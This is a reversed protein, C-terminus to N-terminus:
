KKPKYNVGPLIRSTVTLEHYNRYTAVFLWEANIADAKATSTIKKPMSFSENNLSVQGYEITWTWEADVGPSVEIHPAKQELRVIQMTQPDIYARGYNIEPGPCSKDSKAAEKKLTYDVIFVPLHHLKKHSVLKYDYCKKFELSVMVLSNSFAGVLISPGKLIQDKAPKKDVSNIQRSEIFMNHPNNSGSRKLRFISETTTRRYRSNRIFMDSVLHEDCFFNPVLARYHDLNGQLRLLIADLTLEPKPGRPSQAEAQHACLPVSLALLLIVCLLIRPIAIGTESPM